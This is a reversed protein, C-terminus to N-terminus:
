RWDALDIFSCGAATPVARLTRGGLGTVNPVAAGLAFAGTGISHPAHYVGPLYGRHAVSGELLAMPCTYVENGAANPYALGGSGSFVGERPIPAVAYKGAEVAGGLGAVPRALWIKGSSSASYSLDCTSYSGAYTGASAALACAWPDVAKLSPFDGFWATVRSSVNAAQNEVYLGFGRQDGFVAWVRASGDSANSKQWYGGGSVQAANPFPATGTNVDSMSEYGVVRAYQAASDDVRLWLRTGGTDPSRYVAMNTGSYVKAWGLPAMKHTVSGTVPGTATTPFSYTTATVATIRQQGNISGGGTTANAILAVSDVDFPHGGGRTVTAVGGSITVSDVTQLGYGDVLTADLVAILAGATGSLVPSISPATLSSIFKTATAM